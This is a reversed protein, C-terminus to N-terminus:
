TGIGHFSWVSLCNTLLNGVFQKLTSSWKTFTASLPNLNRLNKLNLKLLNVKTCKRLVPLGSSKPGISISILVSITSWEHETM